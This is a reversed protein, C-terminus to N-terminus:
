YDVLFIVCVCVCGSCSYCMVQEYKNVMVDM